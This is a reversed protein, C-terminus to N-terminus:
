LLLFVMVDSLLQSLHELLTEETARWLHHKFDNNGKADRLKKPAHIENDQREDHRFASSWRAPTTSPLLM